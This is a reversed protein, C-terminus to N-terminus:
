IFVATSVHFRDSLAKIQRVNLQRRGALIDSVVGQSGVEPLETQKVDHQEMFFGLADAGGIEPLKCHKDDYEKVLITLINLLGALPHKQNNVSLCLRDVLKVVRWYQKQNQIRNLPVAKSVMKWIPILDEVLKIKTM